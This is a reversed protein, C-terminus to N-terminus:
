QSLQVTQDTFEVFEINSLRDMIIVPEDNSDSSKESSKITWINAELRALEFKSKIDDYVAVDEGDGGDIEDAGGGGEIRNPGADGILVDDQPSGTIHEVNIISYPGLDRDIKETVIQNALDIVIGSYTFRSYDVTDMDLGGDIDDGGSITSIFFHDDGEDGFLRDIRYGGNIKDNGPGGYIIDVDGNGNIIDDGDRGYITNAYVGGNLDDDQDTGIINEVNLITIINASNDDSNKYLKADFIHITYGDTKEASFDIVDTGTSADIIDGVKFEAISITNDGAYNIEKKIFTSVFVAAIMCILGLSLIPLMFKKWSPAQINAQDPTKSLYQGQEPAGGEDKEYVLTLGETIAGVFRYGKNHVTKIVRQQRGTDGLASRALNISTSISSESIFRNEWIVEYIEDKSVLRDRHKILHYILEFVRPEIEQEINSKLLVHKDSDLIYDEFIFIM